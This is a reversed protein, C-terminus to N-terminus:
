SVGTKVNKALKKANDKWSLHVYTAAPRGDKWGAERRLNGEDYDYITALHTLRIHRLLHPYFKLNPTNIHTKILRWAEQRNFPFLVTTPTLPAIYDLIVKILEPEASYPIGISKQPTDDKRKLVIINSIVLAQDDDFPETKFHEKTLGGWSKPPYPIVESIRCSTIYATAALAQAVRAEENQSININLIAQRLAEQEPVILKKPNPRKAWTYPRTVRTTPTRFTLTCDYCKWRKLKQNYRIHTLQCDKNPCVQRELSNLVIPNAPEQPNPITEQMRELPEITEM